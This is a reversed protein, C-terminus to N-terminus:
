VRRPGRSTLQSGVIGDLITLFEDRRESPITAGAAINHGGGIGGVKEAAARIAVSLDLGKSILDQTGRGSAKIKPSESYETSEAFAVMPVTRDAGESGLLMGAVTGVITEEIEDGADFFQINKLRIVGSGKAWTLAKSLASRHDRLLVMGESLSDGRNGACIRLGVDAKGHRGCANLLTAFEKADRVPTGRAEKPLVYVEGTMRDITEPKRRMGELYDRLATVITSKEADALDAWSRWSDGEKLEIGLELLFSLAGEENGSIRPLFPDSSFELLKHVPRTERGFYRIDEIAQISGIEEAEALILRNIGELRRTKQDQLDGVAGLIALHALDMNKEDMALAALFTSGAGSLDSAGSIGHLQPNVHLVTSFDTLLAQGKRSGPAYGTEPMHHDTVVARMGELKTISGSGLDTFWILDAHDGALIGIAAEDLKKFFRTKADVNARGLAATAIAAASIGDADIHTAVVASSA